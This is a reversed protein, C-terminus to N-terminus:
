VLAERRRRGLGSAAQRPGGRRAEGGPSRAGGVALGGGGAASSAASSWSWCSLVLEGLYVNSKPFPSQIQPLPRRLALAPWALRGAAPPRAPRARPHPLLRAPRWRSSLSALGPPALALRRSLRPSSSPPPPSPGAAHSRPERRHLLPFPPSLLPSHPEPLPARPM